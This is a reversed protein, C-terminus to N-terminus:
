WFTLIDSGKVSCSKALFMTTVTGILWQRVSIVAYRPYLIFHLVLYSYSRSNCFSRAIYKSICVLSCLWFGPQKVLAGVGDIRVQVLRNQVVVVPVVVVPVVLFPCVIFIVMMVM